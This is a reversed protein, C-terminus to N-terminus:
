ENISPTVSEKKFLSKSGEIDQEDYYAIKPKKRKRGTGDGWQKVKWGRKTPEILEISVDPLHRHQLVDGEKVEKLQKMKALEEKIIARLQARNM